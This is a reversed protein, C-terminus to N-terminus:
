TFFVAKVYFLHKLAEYSCKDIDLDNKVFICFVRESSIPNRDRIPPSLSLNQALWRETGFLSTGEMQTVHKIPALFKQGAPPNEGKHQM